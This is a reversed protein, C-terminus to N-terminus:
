GHDKGPTENAAHYRAADNIQAIAEENNRMALELKARVQAAADEGLDTILNILLENAVLLNGASEAFRKANIKM